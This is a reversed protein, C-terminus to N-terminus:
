LKFKKLLDKKSITKNPNEFQKRKYDCKFNFRYGDEYAQIWLRNLEKNKYDDSKMSYLKKCVAKSGKGM